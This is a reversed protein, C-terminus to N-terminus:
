HQFGYGPATIRRDQIFFHPDIYQGGSQKNSTIGKVFFIAVIILIPLFIWPTRLKQLISAGVRVAQKGAPAVPPVPKADTAPPTDASPLRPQTQHKAACTHEAVSSLWAGFSGWVDTYNRLPEGDKRLCREVTERVVQRQEAQDLAQMSPTPHKMLWPRAYKVFESRATEADTEM